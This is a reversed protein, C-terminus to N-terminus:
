ALTNPVWRAPEVSGLQELAQTVSIGLVTALKAGTDTKTFYYEALQKM